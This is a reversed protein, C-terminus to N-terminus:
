RELLYYEVYAYELKEKDYALNIKTFVLRTNEDADYVMVDSPLTGNDYERVLRDFFAELEPGEFIEYRNYVMVVTKYGEVSVATDERYFDHYEYGTYPEGSPEYVSPDLGKLNQVFRSQRGEPYRFYDLGSVIKEADEESVEKGYNIVESGNLMGNDRFVKKLRAEQDMNPVDVINLPSMFGLVVIVAMGLFVWSIRKKIISNVVFLLAGAILLLSVYRLTTLGYAHVRIYIAFLQVGVVPLLMIGGYRVFLRQLTGMEEDVNLYFFVYFLLALSGFWNLRGVPMSWTVIIKIIYGYLILILLLYVYLGVRSVIIDYARFSRVEGDREPLYSIFLTYFAFCEIVTFLIPIIKDFLDDISVLLYNFALLAILIGAFRVSTVMFSFFASKFLHPFLKREDHNRYLCYMIVCVSVMIVGGIALACYISQNTLKIRLYAAVGAVGSIVYNLINSVSHINEDVIKILLSIVTAIILGLGVYFSEEGADEIIILYCIYLTLAGSFLLTAQFRQASKRVREGLNNILKSINM